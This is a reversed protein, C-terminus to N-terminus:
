IFDKAKARDLLDIYESTKLGYIKAEAAIGQLVPIKKSARKKTAKKKRATKKKKVTKKKKGSHWKAANELIKTLEKKSYKFYVKGGEDRLTEVRGRRGANSLQMVTINLYDTAAKTIFGRSVLYGRPIQVKKKTMNKGKTVVEKTKSFKFLTCIM